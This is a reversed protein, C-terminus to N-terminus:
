DGKALFLTKDEQWPSQFAFRPIGHGYAYRNQTVTTIVTPFCTRIAYAGKKKAWATVCHRGRAPDQALDKMFTCMDAQSPPQGVVTVEDTVRQFDLPPFHAVLNDLLWDTVEIGM